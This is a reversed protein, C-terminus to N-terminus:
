ILSSSPRAARLAAKKALSSRTVPNKGSADARSHCEPTCRRPSRPLGTKAGTTHLILVPQGEFPGGVIGANARFEAKIKEKVAKVAEGYRQKVVERIDDTPMTAPSCCGGQSEKVILHKAM